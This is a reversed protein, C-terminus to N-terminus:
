SEVDKSAPLGSAKGRSRQLWRGETCPVRDDLAREVVGQAHRLNMPRRMDAPHLGLRLLALGLREVEADSLSGGDVRRLAQRELLQRLMELLALVLRGVGRRMDDPDLALRPTGGKAASM